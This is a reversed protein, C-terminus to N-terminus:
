RLGSYKTLYDGFSIITAANGDGYMFAEALGVDTFIAIRTWFAHSRVKLTANLGPHAASPSGFNWTSEPSIITIEGITIKSLLSPTYSRVRRISFILITTGYRLINNRSMSVLPAWTVLGETFYNWWVDLHRSLSKSHTAPTELLQTPHAVM